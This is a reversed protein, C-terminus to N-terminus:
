MDLLAWNIKKWDQWLVKSFMKWSPDMEGWGAVPLYQPTSQSKQQVVPRQWLCCLWIAGRLSRKSRSSFQPLTLCFLHPALSNERIEVISWINELRTKSFKFAIHTSPTHGGYDRYYVASFLFYILTHIVIKFVFRNWWWVNLVGNLCLLTIPGHPWWVCRWPANNCGPQM